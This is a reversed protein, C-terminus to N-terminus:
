GVCIRIGCAYGFFAFFNCWPHKRFRFESISIFVKVKRWMFDNTLFKARL